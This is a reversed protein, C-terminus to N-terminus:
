WKERQSRCCTEEGVAKSFGRELVVMVRLSNVMHELFSRKADRFESVCVRNEEQTQSKEGSSHADKLGIMTRDNEERKGKPPEHIRVTEPIIKNHARPTSLLYLSSLLAKHLSINMVELDVDEGTGEQRRCLRDDNLSLVKCM